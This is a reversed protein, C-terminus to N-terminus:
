TFKEGYQAKLDNVLKRVDQEQNRDAILIMGDSEVIILDEIGNVAIVRTNQSTYIINGHSQRAVINKGRKVNGHADKESLSYLSNWTGIDSWRFDAPLVYVNAAKEMIAYDISIVPCSAYVKDMAEAEDPRDLAAQNKMFAEHMEPTFKAFAETISQANWVFIGANWLFDGSELFRRALKVDPKETFTKVKNIGEWHQDEDFQIYGYGTDPRTPKIGLTILYNHKSAQGLAHEMNRLFVEEDQIYHDSPLVAMVAQPNWNYIKYAAYAICPATNRASPEGLIQHDRISPVQERIIDVYQQNTVVLINEEPCLARFRDYTLQFLTKGQGLIDIFQKPHARRSMPWFRSGVGGAMIVAYISSAQM